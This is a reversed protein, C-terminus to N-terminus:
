ERVGQSAGLTGWIMGLSVGSQEKTENEVTTTVGKLLLGSDELSKVIDYHSDNRRKM